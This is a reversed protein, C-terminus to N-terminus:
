EDLNFEVVSLACRPEDHLRNIFSDEDTGFLWIRQDEYLFWLPSDRPGKACSTALHAM